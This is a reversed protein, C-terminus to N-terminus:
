YEVEAANDNGAQKEFPGPRQGWALKTLEEVDLDYSETANDSLDSYTYPLNIGEPM